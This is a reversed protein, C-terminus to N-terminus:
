RRPARAGSAFVALAEEPLYAVRGTMIRRAAPDLRVEGTDLNVQRWQLNLVESRRWGMWYGVMAPPQLHEPLEAYLADFESREFFAREARKNV